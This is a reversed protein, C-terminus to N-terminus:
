ITLPDLNFIECSMDKVTQADNCQLFFNSIIAGFKCLKDLDMPGVYLPEVSKRRGRTDEVVCSNRKRKYVNSIALYPAEQIRYLCMSNTM